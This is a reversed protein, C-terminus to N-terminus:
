IKTFYEKFIINQIAMKAGKLDYKTRFKKFTPDPDPDTIFLKPDVVSTTVLIM